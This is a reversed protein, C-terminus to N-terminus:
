TVPPRSEPGGGTVDRSNRAYPHTDLGWAIVRLPTVRILDTGDVTVTQATGRLQIGRPKWPDVTELDDVVYAVRPERRVNRWKASAALRFGAIDVVGLDDDVRHTVPVVGPAGAADVTALRGLRQGILYALEVPTLIDRLAM